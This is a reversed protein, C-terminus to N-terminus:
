ESHIYKCRLSWYSDYHVYLIQRCSVFELGGLYNRHNAKFSQVIVKMKIARWIKLDDTYLFVTSQLLNLIYNVNLLFLEPELVTKLPIGSPM